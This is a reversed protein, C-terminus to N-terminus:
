ASCSRADCTRRVGGQGGPNRRRRAPVALETAVCRAEPRSPPTGDLLHGELSQCSIRAAVAGACSRTWAASTAWGSIRSIARSTLSRSKSSAASRNAAISAVPTVIPSSTAFATPMTAAASRESATPRRGSGRRGRPRSRRAVDPPHALEIGLHRAATRGVRRVLEERVGAASRSRSSRVPGAPRTSWSARRRRRRGSRRPPRRPACASGQRGPTRACTGRCPRQARGHRGDGGGGTELRGLM